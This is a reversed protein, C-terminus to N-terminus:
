KAAAVSGMGSVSVRPVFNDDVSPALATATATATPAVTGIINHECVLPKVRLACAPACINQLAFVAVLLALKVM